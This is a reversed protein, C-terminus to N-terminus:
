SMLKKFVEVHTEEDLIIRELVKVIHGDKIVEAQRTYKKIAEHESELSNKLIEKVDKSYKNFGPSWFARRNNQYEWLRPDEGLKCALEGFMDLHRMEVMAIKMFIDSIEEMCECTVLHNYLYAGIASMESNRGGMNSLMARGYKINPCEVKILPYQMSAKFEM